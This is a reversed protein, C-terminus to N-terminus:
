GAQESIRVRARECSLRHRYGSPWLRLGVFLIEFRGLIGAIPRTKDVVYQLFYKMAFDVKCQTDVVLMQLEYDGLISPDSNIYEIAM